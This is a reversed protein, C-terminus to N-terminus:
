LLKCFALVAALAAAYFCGVGFATWFTIGLALHAVQATGTFVCGLILFWVLVAFFRAVPKQQKDAMTGAKRNDNVSPFHADPQIHYIKYPSKFQRRQKGM